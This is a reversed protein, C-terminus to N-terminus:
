KKLMKELSDLTTLLKQLGSDTKQNLIFNNDKSLLNSVNKMKKNLKTLLKKSDSSVKSAKKADDTSISGSAKRAEEIVEKVMLKLEQKTITM